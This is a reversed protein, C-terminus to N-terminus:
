AGVSPCSRILRAKLSRAEGLTPPDQLFLPRTDGDPLMTRKDYESIISRSALEEIPSILMKALMTRFKTLRSFKVKGGQKMFEYVSGTQSDRPVGKMAVKQPTKCGVCLENDACLKSGPKTKKHMVRCGRCEHNGCEPTHLCLMYMKPLMADYSFNKEEVKWEGLSTGEPTLPHSALSSDTNHVLVGGLADVFTGADPVHLDYVYEDSGPMRCEHKTGRSIRPAGARTRLTWCKKDPRYQSSVDIGHSRLAAILQSALELSQTTYRRAGGSTDISGDGEVLKDWLVMFDGKSLNMCFDPLRRFRSGGAGCLVAFLFPMFVAGSRIVSAGNTKLPDGIHVGETVTEVDRKIEWLWSQDQQSVSWLSRVSMQGRYPRGPISIEGRLSASGESAFAGVVRLLAHLEPSGSRYFRRIAGDLSGLRLMGDGADEFFRWDREESARTKAGSVEPFLDYESAGKPVPIQVREFECDKAVFESPSTPTTGVMIGHDSTVEVQGEKTSVLHMPKGARHRVVGELGFWGELGARDRALAKWGRYVGVEKGDARKTWSDAMSFLTEVPLVRMGGSPPQVVVCRDSSVSDGYCVYGKEMRDGCKKCPSGLLKKRIKEDIVTHSEDCIAIGKSDKRTCSVKNLVGQMGKHLRIRADSTIWAAIHPIIYDAVLIHQAVMHADKMWSPPIKTGARDLPIEDSLITKERIPNTAFKGFSSNMMLKAVFDLGANWTKVECKCENEAVNEGCVTCKKQRYKYLTEIMKTFLKGKQFWVSAGVSLMKCGLSLAYSIELWTWTGYLRGTPFILKMEGSRKHWRYPLPPLYMTKPVEIICEVFGQYTRGMTKLMLMSAGENLVRSRGIPLEGLMATPYSSNIDMYTLNWGSMRIIETRGGFFADRVFDHMCGHCVRAEPKLARCEDIECVDKRCKGDCYPFHSSREIPKKMFKRRLVSMATSAATMGVEGGLKESVLSRFRTLATYLVLCDRENYEDWRPDDVPLDLDFDMKQVDPNDGCFTKGVEKLSLPLIAISDTFTWKEKGAKAADNMRPKFTLILMRSQVNVIEQGSFLESHMRIWGLVFLNDFNGGNHATIHFTKSQYRRRAKTCEACSGWKNQGEVVECEECARLGLIHRMMADICGGPELFFGTSYSRGDHRADNRFSSYESGDYFCALFPREFGKKGTDLKKSEIDFVVWRRNKAVGRIPSLIDKARPKPAEAEIGAQDM